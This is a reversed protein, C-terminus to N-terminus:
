FKEDQIGPMIAKLGVLIQAQSAGPTFFYEFDVGLLLGGSSVTNEPIITRAFTVNRDDSDSRV